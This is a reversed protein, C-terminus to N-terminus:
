YVNDLDFVFFNRWETKPIQFYICDQICNKFDVFELEEFYYVLAQGYTFKSHTTEDGKIFLHPINDVCKVFYLTKDEKCIYHGLKTLINVRVRTHTYHIQTIEIDPHQFCFDDFKQSLADLNANSFEVEVYNKKTFLKSKVISFNLHKLIPQVFAFMKESIKESKTEGSVDELSNDICNKFRFWSSKKSERLVDSEAATEAQLLLMHLKKKNELKSILEFLYDFKMKNSLADNEYTDYLLKLHHEMAFPTSFLYNNIKKPHQNLIHKRLNDQVLYHRNCYSCKYYLKTNETEKSVRASRSKKLPKKNDVKQTQEQLHLVTAYNSMEQHKQYLPTADYIDRPINVYNFQDQWNLGEDETESKLLNSEPLLEIGPYQNEEENQFKNKKPPPPNDRPLSHPLGENHKINKHQSLGQKNKCMKPCQPCKIKPNPEDNIDNRKRKKINTM